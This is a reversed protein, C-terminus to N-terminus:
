GPQVPLRRWERILDPFAQRGASVLSVAAASARSRRHPRRHRHRRGTSYHLGSRGLGAPVPDQGRPGVIRRASAHRGCATTASRRRARHAETQRGRLLRAGKRRTGLVGSVPRRRIETGPLLRADPVDFRRNWLMVRGREDPAWFAVQTGDPSIAPAPFAAFRGHPAALSVWTATASATSPVVARGGFWGAALLGIGIASGAIWASAPRRSRMPISVPASGSSVGSIGLAIGACVGCRAREPFARHSEERPLSSRNSRASAASGHAVGALDPPDHSLIATMSDAVTEGQFARRGSLMEYLVAGLAFIDARADVTQGRVQEPAMYGITGMVVGADTRAFTETAGSATELGVQRVLGFDLIKVQGDELLFINEPKLDRHVLGKAHAAALGRAIPVSLEITKRASLAGNTTARATGGGRARAAASSSESEERARRATALRDRLTQERSCNRLRSSNGTMFAPISSRWSTLTRSRLSPRRRGSSALVGIRTPRSRTPCSKSRWM